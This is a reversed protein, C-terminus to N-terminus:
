GIVRNLLMWEAGDALDLLHMSALGYLGQGIGYAAGAIGTLRCSGV